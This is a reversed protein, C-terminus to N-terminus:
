LKEKSKTVQVRFCRFFDEYDRVEDGSMKAQYGYIDNDLIVLFSRFRFADEIEKEWGHETEKFGHQRLKEANIQKITLKALEKNIM